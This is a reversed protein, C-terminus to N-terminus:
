ETRVHPKFPHLRSGFPGSMSRMHVGYVCLRVFLFSITFYGSYFGYVISLIYLIQFYSVQAHLTELKTHIYLYINIHISIDICVFMCMEMYLDRDVPCM